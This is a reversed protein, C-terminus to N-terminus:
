RRRLARQQDARDREFLHHVSAPISLEPDSTPRSTASSPVRTQRVAGLLRDLTHYRLAAVTRPAAVVAWSPENWVAYSQVRGHLAAGIVAAFARVDPAVGYPEGMRAGPRNGVQAPQFASCAAKLAL